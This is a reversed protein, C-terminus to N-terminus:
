YHIGKGWVLPMIYFGNEWVGFSGHGNEWVSLNGHGNEWVSLNGHGNEWVSLNGHGNEWVSLNGYDIRGHVWDGMCRNELTDRKLGPRLSHLKEDLTGMEERITKIIDSSEASKQEYEVRAGKYQEICRKADDM